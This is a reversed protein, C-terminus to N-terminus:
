KLNDNFEVEFLFKQWTCVLSNVLPILNKYNNDPDCNIVARTNNISDLLLVNGDGLCQLAIAHQKFCVESEDFKDETAETNTSFDIRAKKLHRGFEDANTDETIAELAETAETIAEIAKTTKINSASTIQSRSLLLNSGCKGVVIKYNALEEFRYLPLLDRGVPDRAGIEKKLVIEGYSESPNTILSLIKNKETADSTTYGVVVYTEDNKFYRGASQKYSDKFLCALSMKFKNLLKYSKILGQNKLSNLYKVIHETLLGDEEINWQPYNATMFEIFKSLDDDRESQLFICRQASTKICNLFALFLVYSINRQNCFANNTEMESM